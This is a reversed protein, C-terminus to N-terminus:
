RISKKKNMVDLLVAAIIVLGKVVQQIYSSVNLLDLGNSLIGLILIGVTTGYMSGIGGATSTGGIVAAAIADLEYGTAANPVASSTRSALLLGTFGALAGCNCYVFLKVLKTKVGSAIAAAENNGIAYIYRGLKSYHLIYINFIIFIVFIYVPFPIGFVMGKGIFLFKDSLNIIPSGQTYIYAIGRSVSQMGLTVIFAPANIYAILFGNVAGFLLGIGVGVIISISLPLSGDIHALDAAVVGAIAMVSGVSLDIGGTILVLTMGIALTGTITVQRLVNLINTIKLFKGGSLISIAIVMIILVFYIMYSSFIASIKNTEKKMQESMIIGERMKLWM